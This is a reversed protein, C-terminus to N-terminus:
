ILLARTILLVPPGTPAARLQRARAPDAPADLPPTAPLAQLVPPALDPQHSSLTVGLVHTVERDCCGALQIVPSGPTDQEACDTIEVGTYHCFLRTRGVAPASALALVALGSIVRALV